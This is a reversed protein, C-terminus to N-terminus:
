RAQVTLRRGEGRAACAGEDEGKKAVGLRDAGNSHSQMASHERADPSRATLRRSTRARGGMCRGDADLAHHTHAGEPGRVQTCTREGRPSWRGINSLPDTSSCTSSLM